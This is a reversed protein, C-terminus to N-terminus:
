RPAGWDPSLRRIWVTGIVQTAILGLHPTMLLWPPVDTTPPICLVAATIVEVFSIHRKAVRHHLLHLAQVVLLATYTATPSM